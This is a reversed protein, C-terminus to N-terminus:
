DPNQADYKEERYSALEADYDTLTGKKRLQELKKFAEKKESQNDNYLGNVGRIIQVIYRLRDEPMEQLLQIAEQRIATM